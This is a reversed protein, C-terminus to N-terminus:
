ASTFNWTCRSCGGTVPGPARVSRAIRSARLDRGDIALVANRQVGDRIPTVEPLGDLDGGAEIGTRAVDEVRGVCQPITRGHPHFGSFGCLRRLLLVGADLM